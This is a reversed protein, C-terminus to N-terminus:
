LFLGVMSVERKFGHPLDEWDLVEVVVLEVRSVPVVALVGVGAAGAVHAMSVTFSAQYCNHSVSVICLLSCSSREQQGPGLWSAM